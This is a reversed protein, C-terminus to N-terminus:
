TSPYISLRVYLVSMCVHCAHMCADLRVQLFIKGLIIEDEDKFPTSFIVTVRDKQATVHFSEGPRYNVVAATNGDAGGAQPCTLARACMVLDRVRQIAFYKEFVSGIAFRRLLAIQLVFFAACLTLWHMCPANLNSLRINEPTDKLDVRLTM